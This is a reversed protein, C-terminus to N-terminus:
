VNIHLKFNGFHDSGSIATSKFFTLPLLHVLIM